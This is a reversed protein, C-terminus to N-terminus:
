LKIVYFKSCSVKEAGIELVMKMLAFVKQSMSWCWPLGQGQYCCHSRLRSEGSKGSYAARRLKAPHSVSPRPIFLCSPTWLWEHLLFFHGMNQGWFTWVPQSLPNHKGAWWACKVYPLFGLPQTDREQEESERGERGGRGLGVLYSKYKSRM